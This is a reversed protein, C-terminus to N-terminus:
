SVEGLRNSIKCPQDRINRLELVKVDCTSGSLQPGSCAVLKAELPDSPDAGVYAVRDNFNMRAWRFSEGCSSPVITVKSLVQGAQVAGLRKSNVCPQDRINRLELVKVCIATNHSQVRPCKGGTTVLNPAPNCLRLTLGTLLLGIDKVIDLNDKPLTSLRIGSAQAIRALFDTPQAEYRYCKSNVPDKTLCLQPVQAPNNAIWAVWFINGPSMIDCTDYAIRMFGGDAFNEGYSNKVLWWQEDNNYGIVFVAHGQLQEMQDTGTGKYIGFRNDQFFQKLHQLDVRMSTVVGGYTRIAQQAALMDPLTDYIFRGKSAM